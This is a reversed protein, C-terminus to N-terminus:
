EKRERNMVVMNDDTKERERESVTKEIVWWWIKMEIDMNM